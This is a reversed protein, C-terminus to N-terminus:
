IYGDKQLICTISVDLRMFKNFVLVLLGIIGSRTHTRFIRSSFFYKWLCLFTFFYGSIRFNWGFIQWLKARWFWLKMTDTVTLPTVICASVTRAAGTECLTAILRAISIWRLEIAFQTCSAILRLGKQFPARPIITQSPHLQCAFLYYFSFLEWKWAPTSSMLQRAFFLPFFFFLDDCWFVAKETCKVISLLNKKKPPPPHKLFFGAGGARWATGPSARLTKWM